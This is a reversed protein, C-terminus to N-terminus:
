EELLRLTDQVDGVQTIWFGVIAVIIVASVVIAIREITQKSM